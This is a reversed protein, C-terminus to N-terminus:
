EMSKSTRGLREKAKQIRRENGKECWERLETIWKDYHERTKQDEFPLLRRLEQVYTLDVLLRMKYNLIENNNEKGQFVIFFKFEEIEYMFDGLSRIWEVARLRYDREEKPPSVNYRDFFADLIQRSGHISYTLERAIKLQESKRTRTWQWISFGLTSLSITIAINAPTFIEITM